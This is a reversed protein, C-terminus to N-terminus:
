APIHLLGPGGKNIRTIGGGNGAGGGGFYNGGGGTM